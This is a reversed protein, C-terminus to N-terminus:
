CKKGTMEIIDLRLITTRKLVQDDFSYEMEGGYHKMICNMGAIKAEKGNIVSINGYGVVSSFKMGWDCGKIGSYIHHDTDMEFCVYSNQRLMDLKKGKSACHFYITNIPTGSFGFNMSVIYPMNGNALAIRCVDTKRIIDEILQISSVDKDKRRM